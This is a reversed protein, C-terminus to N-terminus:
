AIRWREIRRKQMADIVRAVRQPALALLLAVEPVPFQQQQNMRWIAQSIASPAKHKAQM